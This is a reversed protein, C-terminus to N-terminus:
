QVRFLLKGWLRSAPEPTINKKNRICGGSILWIFVYIRMILHEVIPWVGTEQDVGVCVGSYSHKVFLADV